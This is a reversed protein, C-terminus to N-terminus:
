IQRLSCLAGGTSKFQILITMDDDGINMKDSVFLPAPALKGINPTPALDALRGEYASIAQSTHDDSMIFIINPRESHDFSVADRSNSEPEGSCSALLLFVLIGPIVKKM